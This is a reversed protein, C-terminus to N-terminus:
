CTTKGIWQRVGAVVGVVWTGEASPAALVVWAKADADWWLTDNTNEGSPILVTTSSRTIPGKTPLGQSM